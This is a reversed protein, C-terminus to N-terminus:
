GELYAIAEVMLDADRPISAVGVVVRAPKHDKFLESYVENFEGFRAIDKLYVTVKVINHVDGGAARVIEILNNLARMSAEKFTTKILEGTAPNIPLQGSVFVMNGVVVAQSYPGVPKPARETYVYRM